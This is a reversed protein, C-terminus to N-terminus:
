SIGSAPVLFGIRPITATPQATAVLPPSAVLAIAGALVSRRSKMGHGRTLVSLPNVKVFLRIEVFLFGRRNRISRSSEVSEGTGSRERSRGCHPLIPLLRDRVSSGSLAFGAM